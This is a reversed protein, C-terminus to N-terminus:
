ESHQKPGTVYLVLSPMSALNTDTGSDTITEMDNYLDLRSTRIHVDRLYVLNVYQANIGFRKLWEQLTYCSLITDVAYYSSVALTIDIPASGEAPQDLYAYLLKRSHYQMLLKAVTCLFQCYFEHVRGCNWIWFDHVRLTFYVMWSITWAVVETKFNGLSTKVSQVFTNNQATPKPMVADFKDAPAIPQQVEISEKNHIDGKANGSRLSIGETSDIKQKSDVIVKKEDKCSTPSKDCGESNM